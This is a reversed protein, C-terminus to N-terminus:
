ESEDARRYCYFEIKDRQEHQEPLEITTHQAKFGASRMLDFFVGESEHRRKLAVLVLAEPSTRVLRGLVSVLSPLSDANYTCDSVLILDIPQSCLDSPPADWDLNKYDVTSSPKLHAEDLNRMVIEEVEPLDTLLVKCRDLMTALGIGVIGCGAGLEVVQLPSSRSLPNLLQSLIPIGINGTSTGAVIENLFIISALAADWIHRAISNGTEEWINLSLAPTSDTIRLERKVLKEAPKSQAHWSFHASCGSIVLPTSDIGLIVQPIAQTRIQLVAEHQAVHDVSYPGMSISVQRCGAQWKLACQDMSQRSSRQAWTAVLDVDEALFDDGLDTTICILATIFVTKKLQPRSQKSNKKEKEQHFKPPKLFRIYYVM